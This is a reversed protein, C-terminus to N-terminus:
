VRAPTDPVSTAKKHRTPVLRHRRVGASAAGGYTTMAKVFAIGGDDFLREVRV